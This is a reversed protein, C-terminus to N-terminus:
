ADSRALYKLYASLIADFRQARAGDPLLQVSRSEEPTLRVSLATRFPPKKPAQLLHYPLRDGDAQGFFWSIASRAIDSLTLGSDFYGANRARVTEVLEDKTDKRIYLVTETLPAQSAGLPETVTPAAPSESVSKPTRAKSATRSTSTRTSPKPAKTKKPPRSEPSKAETTPVEVVKLSPSEQAPRSQPSSTKRAAGPKRM